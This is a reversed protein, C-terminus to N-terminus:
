TPNVRAFLAPVDIILAEVSAEPRWSLTERHLEPTAAGGGRDVFLLQTLGVDTHDGRRVRGLWRLGVNM